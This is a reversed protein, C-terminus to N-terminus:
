RQGRRGLSGHTGWAGRGDAVALLIRATVRRFVRSRTSAQLTARDEDCIVLAETAIGMKWCRGRDIVERRAVAPGERQRLEDAHHYLVHWQAGGLHADVHLDGRARNIKHGYEMGNGPADHYTIGDSTVM